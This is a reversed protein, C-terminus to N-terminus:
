DRGPLVAGTLGPATGSVGTDVVAILQGAGETLDWVRKQALEQQAWPVARYQRASAALCQVSPEIGGSSSSGHKAAHHHGPSGKQAAAMAVAPALAVFVAATGLVTALVARIPLRM